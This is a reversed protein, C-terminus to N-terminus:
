DGAASEISEKYPNTTKMDLCKSKEKETLISKRKQEADEYKAKWREPSNNIPIKSSNSNVRNLGRRLPINSNGNTLKNSINNM